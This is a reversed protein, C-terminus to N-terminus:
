VRGKKCNGESRKVKMETNQWERGKKCNRESRKVKM